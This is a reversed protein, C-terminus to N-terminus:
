AVRALAEMEVLLDNRCIDAQTVLMRTQPALAAAVHAAVAAVDRAHRVYLTLLDVDHLSAGRAALLLRVNNLAERTQAMVQDIHVTQHGIISATGSIFLWQPRGHPWATARAFSPPRPGHVAPYRYASIQRPNEFNLGAETSALFAVAIHDGECGIGTAAPMHRTDYGSADFAQSRGLNFDRYVEMGQDNIATVRPVYNWIRVLHPKGSATLLRFLDAYAARVAAACAGSAPLPIHLAGFLLAGSERYRIAGFHGAQVPTPSHCRLQLGAERWDPAPLRPGPASTPAQALWDQATRIGAHGKFPVDIAPATLLDAAQRARWASQRTGLDAAEYQLVGLLHRGDLPALAPSLTFDPLVAPASPTPM